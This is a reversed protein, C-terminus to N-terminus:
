FPAVHRHRRELDMAQGGLEEGVLRFEGRDRAVEQFEDAIRRQNDVVGLEVHLEDIDLKFTGALRGDGEAARDIGDLHRALFERARRGAEVCEALPEVDVVRVAGQVTCQQIRLEQGLPDRGPFLVDVVDVGIIVVGRGEIAETEGLFRGVAVTLGSTEEYGPLAGVVTVNPRTEAYSTSLKQGWQQSSASGREVSPSRELIVRLDEETISPRGAYRRWNIRGM